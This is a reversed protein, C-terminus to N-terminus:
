LDALHDLLKVKYCNNLQAPYSELIIGDHTIEVTGGVPIDAANIEKDESDVIQCNNLSIVIRDSSNIEDSDKSPEILLSDTNNKLVTATFTVRDIQKNQSCASLCFITMVTILTLFSKKM